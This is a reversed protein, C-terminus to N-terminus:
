VPDRGASTGFAPPRLNFASTAAAVQRREVRLTTQLVNATIYTLLYTLTNTYRVFFLIM